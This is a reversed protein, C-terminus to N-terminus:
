LLCRLAVYDAAFNTCSTYKTITHMQADVNGSSGTIRSIEFFLIYIDIVRDIGANYLM